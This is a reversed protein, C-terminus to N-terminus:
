FPIDEPNIDEEPYEANGNEVKHSTNKGKGRSGAPEKGFNDFDDDAKTRPKQNAPRQYGAGGEEGGSMSRPPLQFNEGVIETRYMKKKTDKDEWDRTQLRGEVLLLSGKKVYQAITEASKGWFVINHFEVMEQMDGNKDKWKKNTAISFTAVQQSSPTAKLEPDRTVRGLVFVKNLNM